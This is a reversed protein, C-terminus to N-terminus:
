RPLFELPSFWMLWTPDESFLDKDDEDSNGEHALMPFLDIGHTPGKMKLCSEAFLDIGVKSSGGEHILMTSCM